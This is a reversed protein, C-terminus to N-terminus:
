GKSSKSANTNRLDRPKTGGPRAPARSGPKNGNKGKITKGGRKLVTKRTRGGRGKGRRNIVKEIYEWLEEYRQNPILSRIAQQTIDASFLWTSDKKNRLMHAGLRPDIAFTKSTMLENKLGQHILYGKTELSELRQQLEIPTIKYGDLALVEFLMDEPFIPGITAAVKLIARDDGPLFDLRYVITEKLTDPISQESQQESMATRFMYQYERQKFVVNKSEIFWKVLLTLHNPQGRTKKFVLEKIKTDVLDDYNMGLMKAQKKNEMGTAEEGEGRGAKDHDLFLNTVLTDSDKRNLYTLNIRAVNRITSDDLKKFFNQLTERRNTDTIGALDRSSMIVVVRPLEAKILGIILELTHKDCWQLDEIILLLSQDEDKIVLEQYNIVVQTMLTVIRNHEKPKIPSAFDVAKRMNFSEPSRALIRISERQDVITEPFIASLSKFDTKVQIKKFADLIKDSGDDEDIELMSCILQRAVYYATNQEISFSAAFIIESKLNQQNRVEQVLASKGIGEEGTIMITASKNHKTMMSIFGGIQALEAQRGVFTKEAMNVSTFSGKSRFNAIFSPNRNIPKETIFCDFDDTKVKRTEYSGDELQVPKRKYYELVFPTFKIFSKAKKQIGPGALIQGVKAGGMFRSAMNVEHGMVVFDHRQESGCLGTFCQGVDIGIKAQRIGNM